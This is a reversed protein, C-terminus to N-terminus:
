SEAAGARDMMDAHSEMMKNCNDMMRNMQQMMGLMNGSGNGMMAQGSMMGSGNNMMSDGTKADDHAWLTASVLVAGALLAAAMTSQTTKRM